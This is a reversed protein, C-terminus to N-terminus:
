WSGVQVTWIHPEFRKYKARYYALIGIMAANDMCYVKKTPYFFTYGQESCQKQIHRRLDDNASVWGALLVTSVGKQRAAELIKYTLVENVANQFEYSIEQQDELTLTIDNQPFSTVSSDMDQTNDFSPESSEESRESHGISQGISLHVWSKVKWKESKVWSSIVTKRRDVERKVASKLGSFSFWFESKELFVRPFLKKKHSVNDSTYEDALQSIIPGWPYGLGMMKAVKDFAEGAADDQTAGLREMSWMDSMYYIENHWGSVTLCVLPFIIESEERELFNSFIHAEIHNIPIIPIQLTESLTSAVTIGTLLSPILGPHTTVGIYDIQSLETNGDKLVEDLVDFIANAHERSAVEPVVGGTQNHIKIQSKTSMSVLRNYEFLAISTDDCSTEFALIKM